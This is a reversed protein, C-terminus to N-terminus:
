LLVAYPCLFCPLTQQPPVFLTRCPMVGYCSYEADTGLSVGLLFGRVHRLPSLSLHSPTHRQHVIRSFIGDIVRTKHCRFHGNGGSRSKLTPHQSTVSCWHAVLVDGTGRRQLQRSAWPDSCLGWQPVQDHLRTHAEISSLTHCVRCVAAALPRSWTQVTVQHADTVNCLVIHILQELMAHAAPVYLFLTCGMCTYM